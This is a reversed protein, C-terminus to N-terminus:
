TSRRPAVHRSSRDPSSTSAQDLAAARNRTRRVPTATPHGAPRPRRTERSSCHLRSAARAARPRARPALEHMPAAGRIARRTEISVHQRAPERVLIAIRAPATAACSATISGTISAACAPFNTSPCKCRRASEQRPRARARAGPRAAASPPTRASRSRGSEIAHVHVHLERDGGSRTGIRAPMSAPATIGAQADCPSPRRAADPRRARASRARPGGRTRRSRDRRRATGRASRSPRSSRRAPSDRRAVHEAIMGCGSRSAHVNLMTSPSGRRPARRYARRARATRRCGTRRANRARRAASPHRCSSAAKATDSVIGSLSAKVASRSVPAAPCEPRARRACGVDPENSTAGSPPRARQRSRDGLDLGDVVRVLMAEDLAILSTGAGPSTQTAERSSVDLVATAPRASGPTRPMRRRVDHRSRSSLPRRDPGASRAGPPRCTERCDPTEPLLLM